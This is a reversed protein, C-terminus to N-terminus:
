VEKGVIKCYGLRIHKNYLTGSIKHHVKYENVTNFVINNRLDIIRKANANFEGKYNRNIQKVKYKRPGIKKGKIPSITGKQMCNKCKSNKLQAGNAYTLKKYFKIKGCKCQRYYKNNEENLFVGDLVVIPKTKAISLKRRMEISKPRGKQYASIKMKTEESSKTGKRCLSLHKKREESLPKGYNPNNVSVLKGKRNESIILKTELTHKKGKFSNGHEKNRQIAIESLYKKLDVPSDAWRTLINAAWINKRYEDTNKDFCIALLYHANVHDKYSLTIKNDDVDQGGMFTPLIHHEHTGLGEYCKMRCSDIFKLYTTIDKNM